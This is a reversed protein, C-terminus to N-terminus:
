RRRPPRHEQVCHWAFPIWGSTWPFLRRSSSRPRIEVCEDGVCMTTQKTAETARVSAVHQREAGSHAQYGQRALWQEGVYEGCSHRVARAPVAWNPVRSAGDGISGRGRLLPAPYEPLLGGPVRLCLGKRDKAMGLGARAKALESPYRRSLPRSIEDGQLRQQNRSYWLMVFPEEKTVAEPASVPRPFYGISLSRM